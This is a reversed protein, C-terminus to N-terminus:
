RVGLRALGTLFAVLGTLGVGIYFARVLRKDYREILLDPDQERDKSLAELYVANRDFIMLGHVIAVGFALGAGLYGVLEWGSAPGVTSLLTVLLGIGGASLTVLMRDKEMRTSIWANLVTSYEVDDLARSDDPDIV